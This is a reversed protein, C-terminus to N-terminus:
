KKGNLFIRLKEKEEAGYEMTLILLMVETQRLERRLCRAVLDDWSVRHLQIKEGGAHSQLDYNTDLSLDKAVFIGHSFRVMGSHERTFWHEMKGARYGTEELLERQAATFLDEGPDVRGGPVDWFSSRGPQEQHTLLVSRDPFFPIVAAADPRELCEFTRTSGDFMEQPWQYITALEGEFVKKASSPLPSM